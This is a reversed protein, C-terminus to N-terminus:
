TAYVLLVVGSPFTEMHDLNLRLKEKIGSFIPTGTGLAVPDIMIQYIDILGHQALLTLITGSGLLTMNKGPLNKLQKLEKLANSGLIETNEWDAKKLTRSLVMKDARNMYGALIPDNERALPTPWYAAMMEYTRRGFLLINGAKMSELAFQNEEQGHVHWSIDDGPGKLYGDLSIFSFASIRRM